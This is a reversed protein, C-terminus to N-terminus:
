YWVISVYQKCDTGVAQTHNSLGIYYMMIDLKSTFGEFQIDVYMDTNIFDGM